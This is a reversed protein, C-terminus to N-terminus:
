LVTRATQELLSFLVKKIGDAPLKFNHPYTGSRESLRSHRARYQFGTGDQGNEFLAEFEVKDFPHVTQTAEWKIATIFFGDEEMQKYQKSVLLDNGTLAVNKVLNIMESKAVDQEATDDDEDADLSDIEMSASSVKLKTVTDLRFGSMRTVLNVFFRTRDEPSLDEVTVREQPVASKKKSELKEILIDVLERGKDNAPFRIIVGDDEVRFDLTATKDQRQALTTRSLDFESYAVTAIVAEATKHPVAVKDQKGDTDAYEQIVEGIESAELKMKLALSSTREGRTGPEADKVLDIVDQLDHITMSIYEALDGRNTASGFFVGRERTARHLVGDTIRQRASFMLDYIEKDTAFLRPHKDQM